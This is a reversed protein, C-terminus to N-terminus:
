DTRLRPRLSYAISLLNINRYWRQSTQSFPSASPYACGPTPQGPGLKSPPTYAFGCATLGSSHRPTRLPSSASKVSGLFVEYPTMLTVTGYVSVPLCPSFGLAISLVRAFSSPMNVGYSRFLPHRTLTNFGSPTADFRGLRSNVLFVPAQLSTLPLIPM